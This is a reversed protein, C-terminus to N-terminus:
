AAAVGAAGAAHEPRGARLRDFIRRPGSSHDLCGLKESLTWTFTFNSSSLSGSVTGFSPFIDDSKQIWFLGAVDSRIQTLDFRLQRPGNTDATSGVWSGSVDISRASPRTPGNRGCSVALAAVVLMLLLPGRAPCTM